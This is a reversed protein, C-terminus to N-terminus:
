GGTALGAAFAALVGVPQLSARNFVALAVPPRPRRLLALAPGVSTVAAVLLTGALGVTGFSRLAVWALACSAAGALLLFGCAVAAATRPGHVVPLTRVGLHRDEDLDALDNPINRGGIEWATMWVLLLGLRPADVATSVTFWGVAAGVAVMVGSVLFKVSTVTALRCYLVQLCAAVAFLAVCVWGLLATVVLAVLGLTAIYTLAARRSVRGLALPHRGGVGDLDAGEYPRVHAFRRRDLDVDLVDNVAFAAFFGAFAAVTAAALRVPPPHDAALLAATLPQAVSLSAQTGRSLAFFAKVPAAALSM